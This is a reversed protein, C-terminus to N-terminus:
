RIVTNGSNDWHDVDEIVPPRTLCGATTGLLFMACLFPLVKRM